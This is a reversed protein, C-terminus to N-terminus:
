SAAPRESVAVVLEVLTGGRILSAKVPKRSRVSSPPLPVIAYLGSPL